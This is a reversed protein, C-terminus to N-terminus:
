LCDNSSSAVASISISVVGGRVLSRPSIIDAVVRADRRVDPVRIPTNAPEVTANAVASTSVAHAADGGALEGDDVAEAPSVPSTVTGTSVEPTM